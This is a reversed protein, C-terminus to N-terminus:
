HKKTLPSANSCRFPLILSVKPLDSMLEPELPSADLLIGQLNVDILLFSNCNNRDCISDIESRILNPLTRPKGPAACEKRSDLHLLLGGM